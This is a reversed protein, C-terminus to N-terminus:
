RLRHFACCTPRLAGSGAAARESALTEAFRHRVLQSTREELQSEALWGCLSEECWVTGGQAESIQRVDNVTGPLRQLRRTDPIAVEDRRDQRIASIRSGAQQRQLAARRGDGEIRCEGLVLEFPVKLTDLWSGQDDGRAVPCRYAADRLRELNRDDIKDDITRLWDACEIQLNAPAARRRM